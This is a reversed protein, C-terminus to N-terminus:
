KGGGFQRSFMDGAVLMDELKLLIDLNDFATWDSGILELRIRGKRAEHMLELIALPLVHEYIAHLAESCRLLCRAAIAVSEAIAVDRETFHEFEIECHRLLCCVYLRRLLEDETGCNLRNLCAQSVGCAADLNKEGLHHQVVADNLLMELLISDMKDESSRNLCREIAALQPSTLYLTDRTKSGKASAFAAMQECAQELHFRDRLIRDALELNFQNRRIFLTQDRKLDKSARVGLTNGRFVVSANERADNTKWLISQLPYWGFGIIQSTQVKSEYHKRLKEHIDKWYEANQNDCQELIETVLQHDYLSCNHPPEYKVPQLIQDFM